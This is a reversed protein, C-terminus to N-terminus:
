SLDEVVSKSDLSDFHRDPYVEPSEESQGFVRLSIKASAYARVRSEGRVFHISVSGLEFSSEAPISTFMNEMAQQGLSLLSAKNHRRNIEIVTGKM